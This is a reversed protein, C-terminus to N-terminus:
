SICGLNPDQWQRSPVHKQVLRGDCQFGLLDTDFIRVLTKLTQDVYAALGNIMFFAFNEMTAAGFTFLAIHEHFVASVFFAAMAALAKDLLSKSSSIQQDAVHTSPGADDGLKTPTVLRNSAAHSDSKGHAEPVCSWEGKKDKIFHPRAGKITPKKPVGAANSFVVRHLISTIAKNWSSWFRQISTATVPSDFMPAMEIDLMLGSFNLLFDGFFALMYMVDFGMLYSYLHYRMRPMADVMDKTPVFYLFVFFLMFFKALIGPFAKFSEWRASRHHGEIKEREALEQEEIPFGWLHAMFRNFSWSYVEDVERLRFIDWTLLASRFGLSPKWFDFMLAGSQGTLAPWLLLAVILPIALFTRLHRSDAAKPSQHQVRPILLHYSAYAYLGTGFMFTTIDFVVTCAPWSPYPPLDYRQIEGSTLNSWFALFPDVPLLLNLKHGLKSRSLLSSVLGLEQSPAVANGREIM